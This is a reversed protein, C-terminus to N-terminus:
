VPKRLHAKAHLVDMVSLNNVAIDLSCINEQGFLAHDLDSVESDGSNKLVGIIASISSNSSRVIERRFYTM